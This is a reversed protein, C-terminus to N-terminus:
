VMGIIIFQLVFSMLLVGTAMMVVSTTAKSPEKTEAMPCEKPCEYVVNFLKSGEGPLSSWGLFNYKLPIFSELTCSRFLNNWAHAFEWSRPMKEFWVHSLTNSLQYKITFFFLCQPWKRNILNPSNLYLFTFLVNINM